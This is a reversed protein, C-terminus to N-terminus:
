DERQSAFDSVNFNMIAQLWGHFMVGTTKMGHFEDCWFSLCRGRQLALSPSLSLFSGMWTLVFKAGLDALKRTSFPTPLNKFSKSKICRNLCLRDTESFFLIYYIQQLPAFRDVRVTTQGVPSCIRVVAVLCRGRVASLYGVREREREEPSKLRLNFHKQSAFKKVGRSEIFVIPIVSKRGGRRGHGKSVKGECVELVVKKSEQAAYYPCVYAISHPTHTHAEYALMTTTTTIQISPFELM